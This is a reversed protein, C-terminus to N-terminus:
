NAKSVWHSDTIRDNENIILKHTDSEVTIISVRCSVFNSKRFNTSISELNKDIIGKQIKVLSHDVEKIFDILDKKLVSYKGLPASAQSSEFEKTFFHYRLDPELSKHFREMGRLFEFLGPYRDGLLKNQYSYKMFDYFFEAGGSRQLGYLSKGIEDMRRDLYNMSVQIDYTNISDYGGDLISNPLFDPSSGKSLKNFINQIKVDSIKLIEGTDVLIQCKKAYDPKSVDSLIKSLFSDGINSAGIFDRSANAIITGTSLHKKVELYDEVPVHIVPFAFVNYVYNILDVAVSSVIFDSVVLGASIFFNDSTFYGTSVQVLGLLKLIM